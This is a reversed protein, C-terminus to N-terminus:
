LESLVTTRLQPHNKEKLLCNAIDPSMKFPTSSADLLYFPWPHAWCGVFCPVAGMILITKNLIGKRSFRHSLVIGMYHLHKIGSQWPKYNRRQFQKTNGVELIAESWDRLMQWPGFLSCLLWYSSHNPGPGATVGLGCLRQFLGLQPGFWIFNTSCPFPAPSPYVSNEMDLDPALPSLKLKQPPIVSYRGSHVQVHIPNPSDRALHSAEGGGRRPTRHNAGPVERNPATRGASTPEPATLAPPVTAPIPTPATSETGSGARSGRGGARGADPGTPREGAYQARRESAESEWEGVAPTGPVGHPSLSPLRASLARSRDGRWTKPWRRWHGSGKAGGPRSCRSGAAPSPAALGPSPRPPPGGGTRPPLTHRPDNWRGAGTELGKEESSRQARWNRLRPAIIITNYCSM